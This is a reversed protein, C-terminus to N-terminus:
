RLQSSLFDKLEAMIEDRYEAAAYPGPLRFIKTGAVPHIDLFGPKAKKRGALYAAPHRFVSIVLPVNRQTLEARLREAGAKIESESLDKEGATPRRVLDAFGVGAAFAVDDVFQDDEPAPFLGADTLLGMRQRGSRGQYYHGVEVSAPAPNLGVVMARPEEPWLEELARVRSGDDLVVDVTHSTPQKKANV